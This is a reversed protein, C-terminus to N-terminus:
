LIILYSDGLKNELLGSGTINIIKWLPPAVIFQLPQFGLQLRDTELTVLSKYHGSLAQLLIEWTFVHLLYCLVLCPILLLDPTTHLCIELNLRWVM